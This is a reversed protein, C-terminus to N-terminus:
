VHGEPEAGCIVLEGGVCLLPAESETVCLDCPCNGGNWFGHVNEDDRFKQDRVVLCLV